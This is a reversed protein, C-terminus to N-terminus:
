RLGRAPRRTPPGGAMRWLRPNWGVLPCVEETHHQTMRNWGDWLGAFGALLLQFNDDM